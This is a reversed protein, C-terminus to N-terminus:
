NYQTTRNQLADQGHEIIYYHQIDSTFQFCNTAVQIIDGRGIMMNRNQQIKKLLKREDYKTKQTSSFTFRM